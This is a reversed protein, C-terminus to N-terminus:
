SDSSIREAEDDTLAAAVATPLTFRFCSGHGPGDSEVWIRGKNLEVIRKVMTLGMGVGSSKQGLKEFIRFVRDMNEPAIGIGNDRVFFVTEDDVWDAGITVTPENEDGMYKVANELLNQWIQSLRQRDGRLPIDTDTILVKINKEATQGALTAVAEEALQRFTTAAIRNEQFGLRSMELLEQLMEEMKDAAGQIFQLDKCAQETNSLDDMLYGLFTRITILPSRLDHSVTYIFQETEANKQKLLEQTNIRETIDHIIALFYKSSSGRAEVTQLYVEVPYQSGNKRRHFTEFRVLQKEGSLLPAILHEFSDRSISPKLDLPTLKAIEVPTYGLNNLASNNVYTFHWDNIDFIYLENHTAELISLQRELESTRNVVLEELHERYKHLEETIKKQETIEQFVGSIKTVHGNEFVPKGIARVWIHNGKATIFPLELDFPKGDEIIEKVALTIVPVAEPAYFSLAKDITPVYEPGVEHIQRVVNSWIVQRDFPALEWGGVRALQGTEELLQNSQLLQHNREEVTKELNEKMVTLADVTKELAVLIVAVGWAISGIMSFAASTTVIQSKLLPAQDTFFLIQSALIAFRLTADVLLAALMVKEMRTLGNGCSDLMTKITAALMAIIVTRLLIIRVGLDPDAFTFWAHLVTGLFVTVAIIALCPKRSRHLSMGWWILGYCGMLLTNSLTASFILPIHGRLIILLVGAGYCAMGLGWILMQKKKFLLRWVILIASSFCFCIVTLAALMTFTDLKM